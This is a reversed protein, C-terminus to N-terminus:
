KKWAPKGARQLSGIVAELTHLDFPEAVGENILRKGIQDREAIPGDAFLFAGIRADRERDRPRSGSRAYGEPLGAAGGEAATRRLLEVLVVSAEASGSGNGGSGKLLPTAAQVPSMGRVIARRLVKRERPNLAELGAAVEFGHGRDRLGRLMSKLPARHAKPVAGTLLCLVAWLAIALLGTVIELILGGPDILGHALAVAAAIGVSLVMSRWPLRIPSRGRQSRTFIFLSPPIFAGIMALPAGEVGIAPVLLLALGIFALMAFVAGLIFPNRKDAYKVSKNLMRYVTPAVLGGAILPILPAADSYSEPAIRVIVTAMVATALMTGALMLTFYGFQTGRAEGVGYEVEVAQFMTTKQLPRLAKRYGGPLIAVLFAARSALLYTGVEADSVFRSLIFIDAYSVVWMSLVLPVRIAGKRYIAVAEALDFCPTWSGRLAGLALVAALATGIAQAAIAGKIGGGAVLLPVVAALIIVPRATEVAIYPYPRREIWIAISALRFIAGAGGTLAAYIVLTSNAGDGLLADAIPQALAICIGTGLTSVLAITALGTGFSRRSDGALDEDEDDDDDEDDDGGFTRKLTGQKSALTFLLTLLGSLFMLLGLQGFEAPDTFNAVVIIAAFTLANAVVMGVGHIGSYRLLQTGLAAGTKGGDKDHRKPAVGRRNGRRRGGGGGPSM